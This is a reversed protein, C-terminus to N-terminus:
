VWAFEDLMNYVRPDNGVNFLTLKKKPMLATETFAKWTVGLSSADDEFYM